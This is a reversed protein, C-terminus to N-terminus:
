VTLRLTVGIAHLRSENIVLSSPSPCIKMVPVTSMLTFVGLASTVIPSILIQEKYANGRSLLERLLSPQSFHIYYICSQKVSVYFGLMLGMKM